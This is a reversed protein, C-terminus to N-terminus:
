RWRVFAICILNTIGVAVAAIWIAMGVIPNYTLGVGMGAYFIALALLFILGHALIRGLLPAM